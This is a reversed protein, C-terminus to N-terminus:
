QMRWDPFHRVFDPHVALEAVSGQAVIRGRDLLIVRDVCRLAPGRHDVIVLTQTRPLQSLYDAISAATQGDLSAFPEDLLLADAPRTLVRALVIRRAEGISWDVGGQLRRSWPSDLGLPLSRVREALGVLELARWLLHDDPAAAHGLQLNERVTLEFASADQLLVAVRQRLQECAVEALNEADITLNGTSPAYLGCLLKILTSKGSGNAGILAVREGAAIQLTLQQLVEHNAEPYHFGLQETAFAAARGQHPVTAARPAVVAAESQQLFDVLPRLFLRHEHVGSWAALLDRVANQTRQAAQAHLVLGGLTMAGLLADSALYVYVVFLAGSALTHVLLEDLARRRALKALASRLTARLTRLRQGFPRALGLVRVDKATARGTLTAGLYGLERQAVVHDRQWDFRLRAHRRRAWAIPAACVGVFVPLWVQVHALLVAMSGLSLLAVLVAILDQSLRVPRPGAEQGARQLADHFGPRDFQELQLEATREQLQQVSADALRRGHNESVVSAISRLFGGAFAVAAAILTAFIAADFAQDDPVRKSLGDAVSDVLHKMALLGAVPLLAQVTALVAMQLLARKGALSCCTFAASWSVPRNATPESAKILM